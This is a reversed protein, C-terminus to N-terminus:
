FINSKHQRFHPATTIKIPFLYPQLARLTYPFCVADPSISVHFRSRGIPPDPFFYFFEQNGKGLLFHSHSNIAGQQELCWKIQKVSHDSKYELREKESCAGKELWSWTVGCRKTSAFWIYIANIEHINATSSKGINRRCSNNSILDQNDAPWM